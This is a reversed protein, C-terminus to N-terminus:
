KKRKLVQICERFPIIVSVGEYEIEEKIIRKMEEFNKKLPIFERIHASEVGIGACIGALKGTGSSDQGGTMAVTENDSIIITVNSNENVADLLGTMGSHTFTSDGIVSISPFLGADAAGKAMTIAAGMDVCTDIANFPPLAGLTYCGIDSFVKAQPYDTAIVENLAEYLDRHGCGQCMQPPRMRVLSPVQYTIEHEKGFAKGVLDPNLEGTRPLTGDLRGKVTLGRGLYGKLLEEVFPYGDEIVLIAECEDAMKEIKTRPLPYQSLKLVPHDCGQPFNEMLYNYAIGCAIIGLKKDKGDTYVNYKSEESAKEM